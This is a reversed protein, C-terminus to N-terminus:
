GCLRTVVLRNRCTQSKTTRNLSGESVPLGSARESVSLLLRLNSTVGRHKIPIRFELRHNKAALARVAERAERPDESQLWPLVPEHHVVSETCSTRIEHVKESIAITNLSEKGEVVLEDVVPDGPRPLGGGDWPLLAHPRGGEDIYVAKTWQIELPGDTTPVIGLHIGWDEVTVRGRVVDGAFPTGGIKREGIIMQESGAENRLQADELAFVFDESAYYREPVKEKCCGTFALSILLAVIASVPPRLRHAVNL